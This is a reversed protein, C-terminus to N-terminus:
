SKRKLAEDVVTVAVVPQASVVYVPNGVADFYDIVREISTLVQKIKVKSGDALEYESWREISENVDVPATDMQKGDPGTFKGM